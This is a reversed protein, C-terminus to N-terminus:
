SNGITGWTMLAGLHGTYIIAFLAGVAFLVLVLQLPLPIPQTKKIKYNILGLCISAGLCCAMVIKAANEHREVFLEVQPSGETEHELHEGTENALYGSILAILYIFLTIKAILAEKKFVWLLVGLFALPILVIPFHVWLPHWASISYEYFDFM